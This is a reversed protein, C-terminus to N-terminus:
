LSHFTLGHRQCLVAFKRCHVVITTHRLLLIMSVNSFNIIFVKEVENRYMSCTKTDEYYSEPRPTRSEPAYHAMEFTEGYREIMVTRTELWWILEKSLTDVHAALWVIDNTVDIFIGVMLSLLPPQSRNLYYVRSGNPVFGFKDVLHLFNELIGKVTQVMDSLLLGKVIWYSDWYYIEKFRGGPVIFGNPLPILSHKDENNRVENKVKKALKPWISVLVSAFRRVGPDAIREILRPKKKYDSPSWNDLEQTREFNQDVFHKVQKKNPRNDTKNMFVNFREEIVETPARLVMDVFTKSDNFIRARQVLDLIKGHVYIPIKCSSVFQCFLLGITLLFILPMSRHKM